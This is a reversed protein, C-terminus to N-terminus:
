ETAAVEEHVEADEPNNEAPTDEEAATHDPSAEEAPAVVEHTEETKSEEVDKQEEINEGKQSNKVLAKAIRYQIAKQAFVFLNAAGLSKKIVSEYTLGELEDQALKCSKFSLNEIDLHLLLKLIDKSNPLDKYTNKKAGRPPSLLYSLATM